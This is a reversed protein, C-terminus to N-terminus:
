RGFSLSKYQVYQSKMKIMKKMKQYLKEKFNEIVGCRAFPFRYNPIVYNTKM